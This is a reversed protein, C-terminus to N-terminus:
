NGVLIKKLKQLIFINSNAYVFWLGVQPRSENMGRQGMMMLRMSYIYVRVRTHAAVYEYYKLTIHTRWWFSMKLVSIFIPRRELVGAFVPRMARRRRRGHVRDRALM